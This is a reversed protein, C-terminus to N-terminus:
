EITKEGEVSEFLKDSQEIADSEKDVFQTDTLLNGDGGALDAPEQPIDEKRRIKSSVISAILIVAVALAIATIGYGSQVFKIVGGPKGGENRYYIGLFEDKTRWGDSTNNSDGRTLYMKEGNGNTKVEVIRHIIVDGGRIFTVIDYVQLEYDDPINRTVVLDGVMIQDDHGALFDAYEENKREMSNTAVIFYSYGFLKVTKSKGQLKGILGILAVVIVLFILTYFFVNFVFKAIQILSKKKTSNQTQEM